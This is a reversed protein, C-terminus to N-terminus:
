QRASRTARQNAGSEDGPRVERISDREASRTVSEHERKPARTVVRATQRRPRAKRQARERGTSANRLSAFVLSNKTLQSIKAGIGNNNQLRFPRSFIALRIHGLNRLRIYM